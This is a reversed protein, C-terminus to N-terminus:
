RLERLVKFCEAFKCGCEFGRLKARAQVASVWEEGYKIYQSEHAKLAAIKVNIFSSIDVYLQPQFTDYSRGSPPFPEYFFINNYNRGASITALSTNRHSQHTDNVFHTYIQDPKFEDIIQNLAEVSTSDYPVDKTPFNLWQLNKVGLINMAAECETIAEISTRQQQGNYNTYSSNTMIVIKVENGASVEKAITGGMAITEDDAHSAIILLKM